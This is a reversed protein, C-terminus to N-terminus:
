QKRIFYTQVAARRKEPVPPPAAARGQDFTGAAGHAYGVTAQGRETKRRAETQVNEGTNDASAEVIEHRLAADLDPMHGGNTRNDSGGGLGLGPAARGAADDQDGMMVIGAGGGAEAETIAQISAEDVEGGKKGVAESKRADRSASAEGPNEGPPRQSEQAADAMDESVQQLTDRVEPAVAPMQSANKAREALATMAKSPEIAGSSAPAMARALDKLKGADRLAGLRNLLARLESATAPTGAQLTGGNEAMALLAELQKQLEPVLADAYASGKARPAPARGTRVSDQADARNREPLSVVLAVTSLALVATAAKARWAPNSPYLINWNMAALRSATRRLHYETWPNTSGRSAFWQASRLEGGLGATEDIRAAIADSIPHRRRGLWVRSLLVLGAIM